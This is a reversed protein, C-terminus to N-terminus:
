RVQRKRSPPMKAKEPNILELMVPMGKELIRSLDLLCTAHVFTRSKQDIWIYIDTFSSALPEHAQGQRLEHAINSLAQSAQEQLWAVVDDPYMLLERLNTKRPVQLGLLLLFSMTSRVIRLDTTRMEVWLATM